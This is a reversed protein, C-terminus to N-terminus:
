AAATWPTNEPGARSRISAEPRCLRSTVFVMGTSAAMARQGRILDRDTAGRSPSAMWRIWSPVETEDSKTYFGGRQAPGRAPFASISERTRSAPLWRTVATALSESPENQYSAAGTTTM